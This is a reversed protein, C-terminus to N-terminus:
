GANVPARLSEEPRGLDGEPRSRRGRWDVVWAGGFSVGVLVASTLPGWYAQYCLVSLAITGLLALPAVAIWAGATGGLGCCGRLVAFPRHLKPQSYRLRMFSAYLLVFLALSVSSDVVILTNFGFGSLLICCVIGAFALAPVPTRFRTMSRGLWPLPIDGRQASAQIGRSYAGFCSNFTVVSNLISAALMWDGMAECVRTGLVVFYGAQWAAMEPSIVVGIFIPYTFGLTCLFVSLVAGAVFRRTARSQPQPESKSLAGPGLLPASASELESLAGDAPQIHRAPPQMRGMGEVEEALTGLAWFGNYSWLLTSIAVPISASWGSPLSAPSTFVGWDMPTHLAVAVFPLAIFPAYVLASLVAGSTALADVGLVNLVVAIAVVSVKIGYLAGPSLGPFRNACYSALVLPAAPLDVLEWFAMLWSNAIGAVRGLSFHVWDVQGGPSPIAMSLEATIWAQPIAWFLAMLLSCLIALPAGLGAVIPEIGFPGGCVLTYGMVAVGIIGLRGRAPPPASRVDSPMKPPGHTSDASPPDSMPHQTYVRVRSNFQTVHICVRLACM